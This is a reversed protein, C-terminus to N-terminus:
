PLREEKQERIPATTEVFAAPTELVHKRLSKMGSDTPLAPNLCAQAIADLCLCVAARRSKGSADADGDAYFM